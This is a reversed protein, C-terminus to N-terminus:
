GGFEADCSFHDNEPVFGEADNFPHKKRAPGNEVDVMAAPRFGPACNPASASIDGCGDDVVSRRDDGNDNAYSEPTNPASQPFQPPESVVPHLSPPIDQERPAYLNNPILHLATEERFWAVVDKFPLQLYESAREIGELNLNNGSMVLAGRLASVEFQSVAEQGTELDVDM